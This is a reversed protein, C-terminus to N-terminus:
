SCQATKAKPSHPVVTKCVDALLPPSFSVVLLLTKWIKRNIHAYGQLTSIVFVSTQV